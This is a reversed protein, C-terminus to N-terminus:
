IYRQIAETVFRRGFLGIDTTWMFRFEESLTTEGNLFALVREPPNTAFLDVFLEDAPLDGNQLIRLLTADYLIHKTPWPAIQPLDPFANAMETLQRQLAFFTYGTSPRTAGGRMGIYILNGDRAPFPYTTMPINGGETHTVQYDAKTWYDYIYTKLLADYEEVKLHNNSFIAIEVLARRKSFPMVYFFRAEGHQPTRFDMLSAREPDFTDETTEVFWGRFHQDLYPEKIQRPRLHLPLSSFALNASYSAGGAEFHVEEGVRRVDEAPANIRVLGEIADIVENVHDYFEVSRILKYIYPSIDCDLNRTQDHVTVMPWRHYVLDEFPGPEAEWFSWSRDHATKRGEPDVLVISKGALKGAKQLHYLISLGALGGGLVAIDFKNTM